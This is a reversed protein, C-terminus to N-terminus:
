NHGYDIRVLSYGERRVGEIILEISKIFEEEGTNKGDHLYIISGPRANEIVEGAVKGADYDKAYESPPDYTGTVFKKGMSKIVLPLLIYKSTGPARFYRVENQGTYRILHDTRIIQNKLFKRSKLIMRPHDYSHNGILHGQDFVAKAIEPYKEINQGLMFFTAKVNYESLVNLLAPTRVESPGDDFTLAIVKEGSGIKYIPDIFFAHEWSRSYQFTAIIIILLAGLSTALFIYAKKM